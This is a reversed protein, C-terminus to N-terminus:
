KKELLLLEGEPRKGKRKNYVYVVIDKDPM